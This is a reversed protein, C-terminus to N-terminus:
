WAIGQQGDGDGGGADVVGGGAGLEEGMDGCAVGGGGFGPGVVAVLGFGDFV